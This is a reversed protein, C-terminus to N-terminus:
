RVFTARVRKSLVFYPIWILAGVASRAVQAQTSRRVAEDLPPLFELAAADAAAGVLTLAILAIMLPPFSRRRQFFLAALLISFVLIFLNLLLESTIVPAWLPHFAAAGPNTLAAWTDAEFSESFNTVIHFLQVPPRLVMGIGILILWGRLGQPAGAVDPGVAPPAPEWRAAKFAAGVCLGLFLVSVAALSFNLNALGTAKTETRVIGNHTLEWGLSDTISQLQALAEPVKEAPISDALTAWTNRFTVVQGEAEVTQLFRFYETEVKKSSPTAPWDEPLHIVAEHGVGIPYALGLPMTRKRSGPDPIADRVEQPYISAILGLKEKSAFFKPVTYSETLTVVNGVPDDVIEIPKATSIEPYRETYFELMYKEMAERRQDAFTARMASARPGSYRTKVVLSAPAHLSSVEWEERVLTESRKPETMETLTATTPDVVLARRFPPASAGLGDGQRTQTPDLWPGGAVKALVIVHNFALPSPQWEAVKGERQTNVLAPWADVGLEDLIAVLLLAKDKCDGFRRSLVVAPPNPRHSGTGMELGLYRIEEQVFKLAAAVRETEDKGEAEFRRALARVEKSPKGREYLPVAWRAVQGWTEFESLQLWPFPDYWSPLDSEVLLPAVPAVDWVLELVDGTTKMRPTPVDGHAKRQLRRERPWLLRYRLHEIPVDARMGFDDLYKGAFIPNQGTLTFAYDLTDGPRVDHIVLAATLTGDFLGIEMGTERQLVQLAEPRLANIREGGRILSVDHITLTQYSPDWQFSLQSGREVGSASVFRRATRAYMAEEAANIQRDILLVDIGDGDSKAREAKEPLPVAEV